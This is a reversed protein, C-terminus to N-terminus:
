DRKDHNSLRDTFPNVKCGLIDGFRGSSYEELDYYSIRGCEQVDIMTFWRDLEDNSMRCFLRMVFKFDERNLHEDEDGCLQFAQHFMDEKSCAKSIILATLLYERSNIREEDGEKFVNFLLQLAPEHSPVQLFNSFEDLSLWKAGEASLSKKNSAILNEEVRRRTLGLRIRYKHTQMLQSNQELGLAKAKAALQCDDYTYDLCPVGLARAMLRRVNQAYLKPDKKEEENPHYVPLFEIECNSQPQVLTLWMLKWVGPGEWTWTVTDLKNPYRLLVPQVPVGPYFAGPKFTILCSRNTCTGEPFILVQSWNEASKARDIIEQITKQRSNPDDRWVYVPQTFNILKGFIPVQQNEPRTVASSGGSYVSAVIDVFSSHPAVALIPAESRLASRGTVKIRFGLVVFGVKLLNAGAHKLHLRWGTLPKRRLEDETLGYLGVCALLWAGILLGMIILLRLPLVLVTLIGAKIKEYTTTLELHHVFPNVMETSPSSRSISDEESGGLKGNMTCMM